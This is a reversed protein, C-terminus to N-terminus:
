VRWVGISTVPEEIKNRERRALMSYVAIHRNFTTRSRINDKVIRGNHTVDTEQLSIEGLVKQGRFDRSKLSVGSGDDGYTFCTDMVCGRFGELFIEQAVINVEGNTGVM